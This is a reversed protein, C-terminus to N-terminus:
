DSPPPHAAVLAIAAELRAEPELIKKAYIVQRTGNVFWLGDERKPNRVPVYGCGQLRYPIIRRNRRDRLFTEFDGIAEDRIFELTTADPNKLKDLVDALESEEPAQNANVIAWFAETQPPPAKTDFDSLDLQKLYTIVHRDGGSNYYGV